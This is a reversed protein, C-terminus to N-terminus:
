IKPETHKSNKFHCRLPSGLRKKIDQSEFNKGIKLVLSTELTIHYLFLFARSHGLTYMTEEVLLHFHPYKLVESFDEKNRIGILRDSNKTIFHMM